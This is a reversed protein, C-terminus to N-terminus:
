RGDISSERRLRKFEACNHRKCAEVIGETKIRGVHRGCRVCPVYYMKEERQLDTADRSGVVLHHPQWEEVIDGPVLNWANERDTINPKLTLNQLIKDISMKHM